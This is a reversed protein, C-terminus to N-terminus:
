RNKLIVPLYITSGGGPTTGSVGAAHWFGGILTYGGGSWTAADPQGATGNLSYGGNGAFTVGGNDITNWTLDYGGGTQAYVAVAGVGLLAVLIVLTYVVGAAHRGPRRPKYALGTM